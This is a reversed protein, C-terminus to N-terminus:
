EGTKTPDALRGMFLISGTRREVILFVFPHDATFEVPRGPPLARPQMVVATAAAAETGEENVEVFAKHLVAGIYLWNPRGDMGSFDALQDDFADPMGMASLTDNLQFASTMRFRPLTVQVDYEGMGDRWAGLRDATLQQELARLGDTAAPLLILMAVDGGAYPLEVLDLEPFHAYACKLKRAMMPAQVTRDPATHFPADSTAIPNFPVAWTGKFYIANVLVLRTLANIFGPQILNRIKDRTKEEVWGNIRARAAEPDGFDLPTVAVGYDKELLAVYEPLFPYQQQPWISNAATWQAKGEKQTRALRASLDAFAPHLEEPGLSFRLTAAMQKETDGRAGACTMALATSLSYPSFFLNGPAPALARYLDLAFVSNDRALDAAAPAAAALALALVASGAPRAKM